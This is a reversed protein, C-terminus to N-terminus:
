ASRRVKEAEARWHDRDHRSMLQRVDERSEWIAVLGDLTPCHLEGRRELEEAVCRMAVLDDVYDVTFRIHALSPEAGVAMSRFEDPRLRAHLMVHEREFPSTVHEDLWEMMRRPVCEASFGEPLTPPEHSSSYDVAADEHCHEIVDDIIRSPVFPNDATLRVVYEADYARAAEACRRLVDDTAGRVVPLGQDRCWGALQDDSSERTTAVVVDDIREAGRARDVVWKLLSQHHLQALTKGPFRRSGMRAQIVAVTKGRRNSM